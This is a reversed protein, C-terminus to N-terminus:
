PLLRQARRRGVRNRLGAIGPGALAPDGFAGETHTAHWARSRPGPASRLCLRLRPRREHRSRPRAGRPPLVGKSGPGRRQAAVTRGTHGSDTSLDLAGACVTCLGRLSRRWGIHPRRARFFTHLHRSLGATAPDGLRIGARGAQVEGERRARRFRPGADALGM